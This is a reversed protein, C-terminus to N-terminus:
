IIRGEASEVELPFPVGTGHGVGVHGRHTWRWEKRVVQESCPEYLLQFLFNLSM